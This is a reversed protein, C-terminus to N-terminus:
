RGGFRANYVGAGLERNVMERLQEYVGRNLHANIGQNNNGDAVQNEIDQVAYVPELDPQEDVDQVAENDEGNGVGDLYDMVVRPPEQIRTNFPSSYPSSFCSSFFDDVLGVKSTSICRLDNIGVSNFTIDGCERVGCNTRIHWWVRKKGDNFKVYLMDMIKTEERIEAKLEKDTNMWSIMNKTPSYIFSPECNSVVMDIGTIDIDEQINRMREGEFYCEPSHKKIWSRDFSVGGGVCLVVHEGVTITSYDEVAIVHKTHIANGNFLAPNDGCSRIFVFDINNIEGINDLESFAKDYYGGSKTGLRVGGCIIVVANAIGSNKSSLKDSARRKKQSQQGIKKIIERMVSDLCNKGTILYIEGKGDFKYNRM